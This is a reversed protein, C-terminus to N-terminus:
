GHRQDHRLAGQGVAWLSRGADACRQRDGVRLEEFHRGEHRSGEDQTTEGVVRSPALWPSIEPDEADATATYRRARRGDSTAHLGIYDTAAAICGCAGDDTAHVTVVENLSAEGALAVPLELVL